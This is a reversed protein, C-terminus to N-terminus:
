RVGGARRRPIADQAYGTIAVLVAGDTGARRAAPAGTRLRGHRAPRHRAPLRAARRERARALAQASRKGRGDSRPRDARLTVARTAAADRQRGGGARAGARRRRAAPRGARGARRSAGRAAPRCACPSAAARAPGTATRRSTGGHLEVLRRCWRWASASAARRATRPQARGPRVPRVRRRWCSPPSASATTACAIVCGADGDRALACRSTAARAAHVQRRQEAPQRAGAGPADRDGLM